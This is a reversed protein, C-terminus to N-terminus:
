FALLNNIIGTSRNLFLIVMGCVVVTSIFHPAYTIMQVSKKFATNGIENILLALIVSCPFTALTYVSISLTNRIIKLLGPLKRVKRLTGPWDM